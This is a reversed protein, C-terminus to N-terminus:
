QPMRIKALTEWDDLARPKLPSPSLVLKEPVPLMQKNRIVTYRELIFGHTNNTKWAQPTGSAWRLYIANRNSDARGIMRLGPQAKKKAPQALVLLPMLFLGM